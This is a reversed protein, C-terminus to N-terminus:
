NDCGPEGPETERLDSAKWRGDELTFENRQEVHVVEDNVVTGSAKDFVVLGDTTCEFVSAETASRIQTEVITPEFDEENEPERIARGESILRSVGDLVGQKARGTFYEDILPNAPDPDAVIELYADWQDYFAQEVAAEPDETTPTADTTTPETTTTEPDVTVPSTSDDDDGCAGIVVAVALLCAALRSSSLPCGWSTSLCRFSLLTM